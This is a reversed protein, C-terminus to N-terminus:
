REEDSQSAARRVVIAPRCVDPEGDLGRAALRRCPRILDVRVEHCFVRWGAREGSRTRIGWAVSAGRFWKGLGVFLDQFLPPRGEEHSLCRPEIM